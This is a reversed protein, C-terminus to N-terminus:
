SSGTAQGDRRNPRLAAWVLQDHTRALRLLGDFRYQGDLGLWRGIGPRGSRPSVWHGMRGHDWIISRLSGRSASAVSVERPVRAGESRTQCSEYRLEGQEADYRMAIGFDYGGQGNVVDRVLGLTVLDSILQGLGAAQRVEPCIFWALVIKRSVRDRWLLPTMLLRKAVAIRWAVRFRTMLGRGPIGWRSQPRQSTEGRSQAVRDRMVLARRVVPGLAGIRVGKSRREGARERGLVDEIDRALMSYGYKGSRYIEEYATEAIETTLRRDAVRDLVEDVNSFDRKMPIYHRDRKLVGEYEGEILVQCTKTIVAEFHRPSLALFRHEDWGKPMQRSVEAFAMEPKRALMRHISVQMEGRRDVVSSGSECGLVARGSMLFDFWRDGLITDEVRTSIDTRFGRELARKSVMPGIRHKLQGQSGFWYPLHLARYVIDVPRTPIPVLRKSVERATAEDIYGTFCKHFAARGALRQYLLDRKPEEFVSFVDSVGLEILWENLLESHDYEDQPLAIKPCLLDSLWLLERRIGEFFESWRLCLLTTHFIVGDVPIYRLWRPLAHFANVYWV